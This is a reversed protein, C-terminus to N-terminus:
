SYAKDGGESLWVKVGVVCMVHNVVVQIELELLDLFEPEMFKQM